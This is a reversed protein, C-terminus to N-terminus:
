LTVKTIMVKEKQTLTKMEKGGRYLFLRGQLLKRKEDEEEGKGAMSEMERRSSRRKGLRTTQKKVKQWKEM